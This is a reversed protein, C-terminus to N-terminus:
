VVMTLLIKGGFAVKYTVSIIRPAKQKIRRLPPVEACAVPRVASATQALIRIETARNRDAVAVLIQDVAEVTQNRM